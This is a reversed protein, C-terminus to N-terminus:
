YDPLVRKFTVKDTNCSPCTSKQAFWKVLCEVCYEIHGCPLVIGDANHTVCMHCIGDEAVHFGETVGEVPFRCLPCTFLEKRTACSECFTKHGCPACHFKREGNSCGLCKGATPDVPTPIHTIGDEVLTADNTINAFGTNNRFLYSASTLGTLATPCDVTSWDTFIGGGFATLNVLSITVSSM